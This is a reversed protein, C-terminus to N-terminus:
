ECGAKWRPGIRRWLCHPMTRAQGGTMTTGDAMTSGPYAIAGFPSLAVLGGCGNCKGGDLLRRALMDCAEIPGPMNEAILRAGCYYAEAYWGAKDVPVDDHLHGLNFDRAGTRRVLDVTALIIEQERAGLKTNM